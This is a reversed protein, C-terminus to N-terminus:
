VPRPIDKPRITDASFAPTPAGYIMLKLYVSHNPLNVLDTVGVSPAMERVIVPADEAGLRFTILTGTNGLVAHRVEPELQALHQNALTLAVGFKRLESIMNAVSLTTYSQFEDIYLYFPTRAGPEINSRSLGAFTIASVLLAGLLSASDDGFLGKGLNVLLIRRHDMVERLRIDTGGPIIARSLRPDALFAGIKNQIPAIADQRYRPNFKAFEKQWFGRVQDNQVRGVISTRFSHEGLMRLIDPLSAEGSELLAYICNRLIHEMRNGWENVWLKKFAELLGSAALPILLKPIRKLPNYTYQNAASAPDFYILDSARQDPIADRLRIVLDGHPDIVGLGRGEAIDQMALCELLNSKGTGTRGIVYM